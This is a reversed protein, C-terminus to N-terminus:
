LVRFVSEKLDPDSDLEKQLENFPADLNKKLTTVFFIKKEHNQKLYEKIFRLVNYTKGTGTPLDLLLLGTNSKNDLCYRNLLEIM